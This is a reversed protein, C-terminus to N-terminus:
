RASTPATGRPRASRGAAPVRGAHRQGHGAHRGLRHGPQALHDRLGGAAVRDHEAGADLRPDGDLHQRRAVHLRHLLDAPQQRDHHVQRDDPLGAGHRLDAAPQQIGGQAARWQVAIGNGPTVFVAYYPSGPDTTARIMPGAKAWPDTAQQAHRARDRHRRRVADACVFHFADATGWIDGGGGVENWTGSSTLQDQGPPLAGGIDTCTWAPRASSPRRSPAPCRHWTTWPPRRPPPRTTPTAHRHRRGAAGAPQARRHLRPRLHLEGRRHLHLRQLLGREHRHRHIPSALVGSPRPRQGRLGPGPQDPGGGGVAVAGRRRQRPTVFVGYYPAQPDTASSRIMVGTKMWPGGPNAQSVVRASVTGDGNASNAPDQPFSQSIFRFNDFNSWIDSGGAQITWTGATGGGQQPGLYVQNGPLIDTGIDACSFGAPCIGPPQSSAATLTVNNYVVPPAVRPANATAAM